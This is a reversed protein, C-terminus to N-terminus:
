AAHIHVGARLKELIRDKVSEPANVGSLDIYKVSVFGTCDELKRYLNSTYGHLQRFNKGQALQPTDFFLYPTQMSLRMASGTVSGTKEYNPKLNLIGTSAAAGTDITNEIQQATRMAKSAQSAGKALPVALASGSVAGSAVTAIGSIINKYMDIFSNGTIPIQCSINGEYQDVIHQRGHRISGLQYVITGSFTDINAELHLEGDMYDDPNVTKIGVAPIYLNLRTFPAYDAFNNYLEKLNISGFNKKVLNVTLKDSTISSDLNGIKIVAQTTAIENNLPMIALSIINEFPSQWAKKINDIFSDSWLYNALSTADAASLKYQSIFGFSLINLSPLPSFWDTDSSRYFGGGGGGSELEPVQAEPDYFDSTNQEMWYVWPQNPTWQTGNVLQVPLSDIPTGTNKNVIMPCFMGFLIESDRTFYTLALWVHGIYRIDSVEKLFYGNYNVQPLVNGQEDLYRINVHGQTGDGDVTIRIAKAGDYPDLEANVTVASVWFDRTFNINGAIFDDVEGIDVIPQPQEECKTYPIGYYTMRNAVVPIIPQTEGQFGRNLVINLEDPTFSAM